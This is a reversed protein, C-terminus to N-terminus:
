SIFATVNRHPHHLLVGDSVFHDFTVEDPQHQPAAIASFDVIDEVDVNVHLKRAGRM